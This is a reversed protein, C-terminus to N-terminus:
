IRRRRRAMLGMAGLALMSITGPEPVASGVIAPDVGISSAFSAVTQIDAASVPAASGSYSSGFNGALSLFDAISVNHDYNLDGEQWTANGVSGFNGAM